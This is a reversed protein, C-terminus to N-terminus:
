ITSTVTQIELEMVRAKLQHIAEALKMVQVEVAENGEQALSPVSRVTRRVVEKVTTKEALLQDKERKINVKDEEIM